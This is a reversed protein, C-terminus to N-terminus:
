PTNWLAIDSARRNTLGENVRVTGDALTEKNWRKLQAPVSAYDGANLLRLLTSTILRSEGLNFVFSILAFRQNDTLPM